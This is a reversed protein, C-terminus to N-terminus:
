DHFSRLTLQCFPLLYFPSRIHWSPITLSLLRPSPLHFVTHVCYPLLIDLLYLRSEHCLHLGVDHGYDAAHALAGGDRTALIWSDAKWMLFSPVRVGVGASAWILDGLGVRRYRHQLQLLCNRITVSQSTPTHPKSKHCLSAVSHSKIYRPRPRLPRVPPQMRQRHQYRAILSAATLCTGAVLLIGQIRVWHRDSSIPVM